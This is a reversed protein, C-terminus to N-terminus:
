IQKWRLSPAIILRKVPRRLPHLESSAASEDGTSEGVPRINLDVRLYEEILAQLDLEDDHLMKLGVGPPQNTPTWCPRWRM